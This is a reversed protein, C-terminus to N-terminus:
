FNVEPSVCKRYTKQTKSSKELTDGAFFREVEHTRFRNFSCIFGNEAM